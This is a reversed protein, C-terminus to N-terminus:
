HLGTGVRLVPVELAVDLIRSVQDVLAHLGADRVLTRNAVDQALQDAAQALGHAVRARGRHPLELLRAEHADGARAQALAVRVVHRDGLLRRIVPTSTASTRLRSSARRSSRGTSTTSRPPCYECSIARRTRSHRTKESSTGCGAVGSCPRARVGCARIRLPPGAETYACSAGCTSGAM